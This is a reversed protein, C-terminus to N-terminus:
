NENIRIDQEYFIIEVAKLLYSEYNNPHCLYPHWFGESCFIIFGVDISRYAPLLLPSILSAAMSLERPDISLIWLFCSQRYASPQPTYARVSAKRMHSLQTTVVSCALMPCVVAARWAALVITILM